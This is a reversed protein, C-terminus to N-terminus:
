DKYGSGNVCIFLTPHFLLFVLFSINQYIHGLVVLHPSNFNVITIVQFFLCWLVFCFVVLFFVIEVCKSLRRGWFYIFLIFIFFYISLSELFIYMTSYLSTLAWSKKLIKNERKLFTKSGRKVGKLKQCQHQWQIYRVFCVTFVSLLSFHNIVVINSHTNPM